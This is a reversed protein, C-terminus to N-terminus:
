ESPLYEPKPPARDCSVLASTPNPMQGFKIFIESLSRASFYRKQPIKWPINLFLICLFQGFVARVFKSRARAFVEPKPSPGLLLARAEPLTPFPDSPDHTRTGPYARTFVRTTRLLQVPGTLGSPGARLIEFLHLFLWFLEYRTM